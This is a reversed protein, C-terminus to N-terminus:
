QFYFSVADILLIDSMDLPLFTKKEPKARNPNLENRTYALGASAAMVTLEPVAAPTSLRAGPGTPVIVTTGSKPTGLTVTVHVKAAASKPREAGALESKVEPPTYM